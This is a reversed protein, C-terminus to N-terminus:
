KWHLPPLKAAIAGLVEDLCCEFGNRDLQGRVVFAAADGPARWIQFTEEMTALQASWCPPTRSGLPRTLVNLLPAGAPPAGLVSHTDSRLWGLRHRAAPDAHAPPREQPRACSGALLAVAAAVAAGRLCDHPM